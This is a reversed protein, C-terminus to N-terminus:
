WLNRGKRSEDLNGEWEIKGELKLMKKKADKQTNKTKEDALIIVKFSKISSIKTVIEPPVNLHGDPLINGNFEYALM